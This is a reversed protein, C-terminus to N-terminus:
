PMFIFLIFLNCRSRFCSSLYYLYIPEIPDHTNEIPRLGEYKYPFLAPGNRPPDWYNGATILIVVCPILIVVQILRIM